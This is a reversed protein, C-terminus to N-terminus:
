KIIEGGFAVQETVNQLRIHTGVEIGFSLRKDGRQLAFRSDDMFIVNGWYLVNWNIQSIWKLRISNYKVFLPVCDLAYHM